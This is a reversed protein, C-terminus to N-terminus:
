VRHCVVSDSGNILAGVRQVTSTHEAAICTVHQKGLYAASSSKTSKNMVSGWVDLYFKGKNM